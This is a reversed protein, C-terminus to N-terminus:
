RRGPETERIFAAIADALERPRDWMVFHSAGPVTVRRLSPACAKWGADIDRFVDYTRGGEIVCVPMPLRRVDDCGFAPPPKPLGALTAANERLERQRAPALTGWLGPDGTIGAFFVRIRDDVNAAGASEAMARQRRAFVSDRSAQAAILAVTYPEVLVLSRVLEPHERAALAAVFGGYSHGVVHAGGPAIRRLLQVLDAAHQEVSYREPPSADRAPYHGWRSYAVTEFHRRLRAAVGDWCRHDLLTGHVFVITEGRGREVVYVQRGSDSVAIWRGTGADGEACAPAIPAIACAVLTAVLPLLGPSTVPEPESGM